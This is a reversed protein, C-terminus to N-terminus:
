KLKQPIGATVFWVHDAVAAIDQHLRGAHDRFERAMKEIPVIGQGVENSVLLVSANEPLSGLAGVLYHSEYAVDRKAMMLNTLWLTLCDVLICTNHNAHGTLRHAVDLPEELLSWDDGRRKQHIAIREEMEDDYAESTALYTKQRESADALEEAFRSKGSRAGGLILTVGPSFEVAM